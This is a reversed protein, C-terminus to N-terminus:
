GHTVKFQPHGRAGKYLAELDSLRASGNPKAALGGVIKSEQHLVVLVGSWCHAHRLAPTACPRVACPGHPLMKPWWGGGGGWPPAPASKPPKPYKRSQKYTVAPAPCLGGGPPPPTHNTPHIPPHTPPQARAAAWGLGGGRPDGLLPRAVVAPMSAATSSQVGAFVALTAESAATSSPVCASM